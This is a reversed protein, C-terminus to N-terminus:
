KSDMTMSRWSQLLSYVSEFIEYEEPTLKGKIDTPPSLSAAIGLIKRLRMAMLDYILARTKEIETTAANRGGSDSAFALHRRIKLYFDPRMTSLQDAGAIKERTVAKFVESAFSEEQNECLDLDVLIESVWRPLDVADGENKAELHISGIDTKPIKQKVRLRVGSLLYTFERDRISQVVPQSSM